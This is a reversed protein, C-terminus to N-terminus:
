AAEELAEGARAADVFRRFLRAQDPSATMCEAHWQVGIVFPSDPAEIGEIVGDPSWAVAVLGEGLRAVAQHHFSNVRTRRRGLIGALASGHEVDVGHAPMEGPAAQRHELSVGAVEPIHQHLTGGRAVNLAQAGRCIGLVPLGREDAARAVSLEFRDLDVTTPGLKPHPREGYGLPDIDPGGSLCVGGLRDLLPGIADAGMPPIVMPIGGAAEIAATYRVGVALEVRPPDGEPAPDTHEPVRVESTTV